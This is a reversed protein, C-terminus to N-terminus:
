SIISKKLYIYEMMFNRKKYSKMVSMVYIQKRACLWWAPFTKIRIFMEQYVNKLSM